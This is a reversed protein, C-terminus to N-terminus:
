GIPFLADGPLVFNRSTEHFLGNDADRGACRREDCQKQGTASLVPLLAIVTSTKGRGGLSISIFNM